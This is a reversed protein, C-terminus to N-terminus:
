VTSGTLMSEAALRESVGQNAARQKGPEATENLKKIRLLTIEIALCFSHHM